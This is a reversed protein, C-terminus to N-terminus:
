YPDLTSIAHQCFYVQNYSTQFWCFQLIAFSDVFYMFCQIRSNAIVARSWATKADWWMMDTEPISTFCRDFTIWPFSWRVLFPFHWFCETFKNWQIITASSNILIFSAIKFFLLKSLSTSWLESSKNYLAAASVYNIKCAM